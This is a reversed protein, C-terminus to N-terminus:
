ETEQCNGYEGSMPSLATDIGHAIGQWFSRANWMGLWEAHKGVAQYHAFRDRANGEKKRSITINYPRAKIQFYYTGEAYDFGKRKRRAM